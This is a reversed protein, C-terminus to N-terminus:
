SRKKDRGILLLVALGATLIVTTEGLTDFGRYSALIASVMNPIAIEISTKEIYYKAVHQHAPTDFAGYPPMDLAAYCLLLLVPIVVLLSLWPRVPASEKEGLLLLAALLIITSAGAGVAAETMAVDPAGMLVYTAAMILSFICLMIVSTLLNSCNIAAVATVVLLVLLTLEILLMYDM